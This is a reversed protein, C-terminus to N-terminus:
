DNWHEPIQLDNIDEVFLDVTEEYSGVEAGPGLDENEVAGVQVLYGDENSNNMHDPGFTVSVSGGKPKMAGGMDGIACFMTDEWVELEGDHRDCWIALDDSNYTM